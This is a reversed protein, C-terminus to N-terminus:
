CSCAKNKYRFNKNNLNKDIVFDKGDSYFDNILSIVIHKVDEWNTDEDKNVSLFDSGLFIGKM